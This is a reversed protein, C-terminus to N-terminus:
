PLIPNFGQLSFSTDRTLVWPSRRQPFALLGWAAEIAEQSCARNSQHLCKRNQESSGTRCCHVGSLAHYGVPWCELDPSRSNLKTSPVWGEPTPKSILRTSLTTVVVPTLIFPGPGDEGPGKRSRMAVARGDKFGADQADQLCLNSISLDKLVLFVRVQSNQRGEESWKHEQGLFGLM